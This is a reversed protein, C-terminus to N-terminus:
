QNSTFKSTVKFVSLDGIKTIKEPFTHVRKALEIFDTKIEISTDSMYKPNFLWTDKGLGTNYQENDEKIRLFIETFEAIIELMYDRIGIAMNNMMYKNLYMKLPDTSYLLKFIHESYSDPTKTMCRCSVGEFMNDQVKYLKEKFLKSEHMEMIEKFEQEYIDRLHEPINGRKKLFSFPYLVKNGLENQYELYTKMKLEDRLLLMASVNLKKRLSMDLALSKFGYGKDNVRSSILSEGKIVKIPKHNSEENLEEGLQKYELGSIKGLLSDMELLASKCEESISHLKKVNGISIVFPYHESVNVYNSLTKQIISPDRNSFRFNLLPIVNERCSSLVLNKIKTKDFVKIPRGNRLLMNGESDTLYSKYEKEVLSTIPRNTLNTIMNALNYESASEIQCANIEQITIGDKSDVTKKKVVSREKRLRVATIYRM